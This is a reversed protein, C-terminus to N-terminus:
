AFDVRAVGRERAAAEVYPLPRFGMTGAIVRAPFTQIKDNYRRANGNYIARAAAVNNEINVLEAQLQRFNGDAKLQPYREVVAFLGRLSDTLHNEAPAAQSPGAHVASEAVVRDETVRQLTQAEHAAYAQVTGVLNPVLDRRRKLQVDVGSWGEDAVNRAKVMGNYTLLLYLTILCAVSIAVLPWPM